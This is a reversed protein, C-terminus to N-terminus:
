AKQSIIIRILDDVLDPEALRSGTHWGGDLLLLADLIYYVYKAISLSQRCFLGVSENRTFSPQLSEM